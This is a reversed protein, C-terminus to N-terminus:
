SIKPIGSHDRYLDLVCPEFVCVAASYRLPLQVSLDDTMLESGTLSARKASSKHEIV